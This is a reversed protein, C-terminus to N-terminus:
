KYYEKQDFEEPNIQGGHVDIRDCAWKLPCKACWNLNCYAMSPVINDTYGRNIVDWGTYYASEFESEDKLLPHQSAKISKDAYFTTDVQKIEYWSVYNIAVHYVEYGNWRLLWAYTALQMLHYDPIDNPVNRTTKADELRKFKPNYQDVQGSVMVEPYSPLNAKYREERIMARDIEITELGGHVLTGRVMPICDEPRIYHKIIKQLVAKRWAGASITSATPITVKHPRMLSAFVIFPISDVHGEDYSVRLVEDSDMLKGNDLIIGEIM